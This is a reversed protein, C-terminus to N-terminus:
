HGQHGAAGADDRRLDRSRPAATPATTSPGAPTASTVGSAPASAAGHQHSGLTQLASELNSEADILFNARTVVQEGDRLGALIEVRDGFHRGTGVERPAFRGDGVRVLVVQRTGSDIVATAPVTLAQVSPGAIQLQGYLGPRLRGDRNRLEIRVDVTRAAADVVPQIFTVRGRVTEGPLASSTFTATQGPALSGTRDVPVHATAWITSLDAVKLIAEGAAFRAGPLVPKELVVGTVRSRYVVNTGAGPEVEWNRLRAAAADRLRRMAAAGSPDTSSLRRAAGDALAIEQRAAALTPSYVALLPQGARVAMGTQNAYLHAVWGEFRPAVVYQRTEDISVTASARLDLTVTGQRAPETRVGLTQLRAPDLAVTGPADSAQGEYVPVYDMGMPDKKPVPSIDSSMPSRYYLVRQAGPATDIPSPTGAAQRRGIGIGAVLAAAAALAIWLTSRAIPNM